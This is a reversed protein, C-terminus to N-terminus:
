PSSSDALCDGPNSLRPKIQNEDNCYEGCKDKNVSCVFLTPKNLLTLFLAQTAM